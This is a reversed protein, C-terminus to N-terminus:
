IPSLTIYYYIVTVFIQQCSSMQPKNNETIDENIFISEEDENMDENIYISM